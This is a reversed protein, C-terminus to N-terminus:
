TQRHLGSKKPASLREIEDRLEAAKEFELQDAAATMERKLLEILEIKDLQDGYKAAISKPPAMKHPKVDAVSTGLMVEDTSKYITQPTIDHKRNYAKQKRRRRNVENIVKQMSQTMVDAYFIVRGNVNRAARGSIQMLSRESRLFGEKDADLIAVLSVEPLDLGERLLNIGVLVDFKGLRLDRLITVRELTDIESHLYHVQLGSGKLYESLDEAMRKTLTMVLVRERRGTVQYIEAILDDIQHKTPRVSVAPDLLGTPRIVQEVVEGHTKNLEYEAPTASVFIAQNVHQEFEAFKLPRHDLASPLRFGYEVLTEKRARDGNYMARLQPLTVHSEDIFILYDAPFFDLLTYPPEGPKRDTFHREYNEIGQCYGIEQIMELDFNTRQELRQAELLRNEDRLVKLREALEARITRIAKQTRAESSVFHKAPFIVIKEHEMRKENNLPDYSYIKEIENGFFEIRYAFDEYAPYIEVIDGRARFTGRELNQNNRTYYIDVLQSFLGRIGMNKGQELQVTFRSYEKPSGIGYICSVSAVVIVDRRSMLASTAKLRLKDIEDNISSDKEIYTDTVPLYAEPQYYDYFSIFYEVANHPFFRKFESYLQAALTKNHSIVLTPRQINQIVHAMTFTKGSGTVGLLTQWKDTQQIGQILEAIAQPQDGTPKLQTQLNFDAM